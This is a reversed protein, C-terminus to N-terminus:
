ETLNGTHIYRAGEIAGVASFAWCAGCFWQNKVKTVAGDETWDKFEPVNVVTAEDEDDTGDNEGVGEKSRLLKRSTSSLFFSSGDSRGKPKMVGPSYEGLYFRQRFEDNTLDSFDNHSLEYSSKKNKKTNHSEIYVHNQLWVLKRLAHEHTSKYSREFRSMWNSFSSHLEPTPFTSSLVFEPSNNQLYEVPTLQAFDLDLSVGGITGSEGNSPDITYSAAEASSVPAYSTAAFLAAIGITAYAISPFTM